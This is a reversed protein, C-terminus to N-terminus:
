FAGSKNKGHYSQIQYKKPFSTETDRKILETLQIFNSM